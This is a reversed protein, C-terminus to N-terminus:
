RRSLVGRLLRGGSADLDVGNSLDKSLRPRDIKANHRRDVPLRDVFV